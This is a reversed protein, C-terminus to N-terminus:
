RNGGVHTGCWKVANELLEDAQERSKTGTRIIVGEPRLHRILFEVNEIPTSLDLGCGAEQIRRYLDIWAPGNPAQGSGPVYQIVGISPSNALRPVQHFAGPGDLHYWLPGYREALADMEVMVYRDFMEESIMCSMDSQSIMVMEPHWLGPWGWVGEGQRADVLTRFHEFNEIWLPLLEKLRQACRDCDESMDVLFATTDRLLMLLDNAMVQTAYAVLFKGPALDLLRNIVNDLKQRWPDDPGPRWGIPDDISSMTIPHWITNPAFKAGSGCGLAYGGMFFGGTPVAEGGFYTSEMMRLWNQSIYDVDFYLGELTDPAPPAAIETPQPARVDLCPRDMPVKEWFAGWRKRAQPWDPKYLLAEGEGCTPRTTQADDTLPNEKSNLLSCEAPGGLFMEAHKMGLMAGDLADRVMQLIPTEGTM